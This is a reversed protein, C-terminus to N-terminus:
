APQRISLTNGQDRQKHVLFSPVLSQSQHIIFASNLKTQKNQQSTYVINEIIMNQLSCHRHTPTRTIATSCHTGGESIQGMFTHLGGQRYSIGGKTVQITWIIFPSWQIESLVNSSSWCDRTQSQQQPLLTTFHLIWCWQYGKQHVHIAMVSWFSSKTMENMYHNCFNICMFLLSWM